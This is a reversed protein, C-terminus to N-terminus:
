LKNLINGDGEVFNYQAFQNKTVWAMNEHETLKINGKEYKCLFYHLNINIKSDKYKEEAIKQKISIYINLEEKIERILAMRFSENKEVKGGPFEWKLGFDKSKNRQVILYKNDKKIIGAVVQILDM